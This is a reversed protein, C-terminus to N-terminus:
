PRQKKAARSDTDIVEFGDMNVLRSPGAHIEGWREIVAGFDAVVQVVRNRRYGFYVGYLGDGLGTRFVAANDAKGVRAICLATRSRALRNVLRERADDDDDLRDAVRADMFAGMAVDVSFGFLPPFSVISRDRVLKKV